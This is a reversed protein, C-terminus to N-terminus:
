WRYRIIMLKYYVQRLMFLTKSLLYAKRYNGEIIACLLSKNRLSMNSMELSKGNVDYLWKDKCEALKTLKVDLCYTNLPHGLWLGCFEMMKEIRAHLFTKDFIEPNPTKDIEDKLANIYKSSIDILNERYRNVSSQPLYRYYYLRCPTYCVKSAYGFVRFNFHNDQSRILSIDFHIDNDKILRTSYLKAWPAGNFRAGLDGDEVICKKMMSTLENPKSYESYEYYDWQIEDFPVIETYFRKYNCVVIDAMTREAIGTMISIAQPHLADDADVFMVYDGSAKELGLNRASSVGGNQKHLVQVRCDLLALKDCVQGCNDPSGDDVLLIEIDHYDQCQLGEVCTVLANEPIKYVPVVLSVKKM